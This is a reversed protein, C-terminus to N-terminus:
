KQSKIANFVSISDKAEAVDHVRLINAGKTLADYHTAITGILRKDVPRNNLINGILSKRSAGVLVPYGIEAIKDLHALIKLNHTLNKGFGIGPDLIIKKVGRKQAFECQQKLFDCVEAVVDEYYPNQQMTKPNGKSHMLILHANYQAALEALRPEKRLGSVDNIIKVGAELAKKAVEYKTTDISYNLKPFSELAAEIIPMVRNLEETESVSDSGPRTSEGGIDVIDVGQKYMIYIRDRARNIDLYKNGDSFSDPTVNLVGMLKPTSFDIESQSINNFKSM